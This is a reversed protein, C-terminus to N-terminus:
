CPDSMCTRVYWCIGCGWRGACVRGQCFCLFLSLCVCVCVCVCEWLPKQMFHVGQSSPDSCQLVTTEGCVYACVYTHIYKHYLNFLLKRTLYLRVLWVRCTQSLTRAKCVCVTVVSTLEQTHARWPKHGYVGCSMLCELCGTLVSQTYVTLRCLVCCVCGLLLSTRVNVAHSQCWALQLCTASSLCLTMSTSMIHSYQTYMRGTNRESSAVLGWMATTVHLVCLSMWHVGAVVEAPMWIVLVKKRHWEM